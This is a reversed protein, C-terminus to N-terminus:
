IITRQQLMKAKRKIRELREKEEHLRKRMLDLKDYIRPSLVIVEEEGEDGARWEIRPSFFRFRRMSPLSDDLEVHFERKKGHRLIEVTVEDGPDYDELVDLLDDVDNIKEDELQLIVDGAKLGADEAPSDELVELILVGRGDEVGFYKGLDPNLDEVRVGLSARGSTFRMFAGPNMFSFGWRRRPMRGVEVEITKEEGDRFIKIKVRTGPPTKRVLRVLEKAKEVTQGNFELIVDEERLGAEEAPSDDEVDSILLGTRDGLDLADRLSPTLEQVAIGLWGRKKAAPQAETSMATFFFALLLVFWWNRAHRYIERRM